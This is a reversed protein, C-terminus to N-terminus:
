LMGWEGCGFCTWVECDRGYMQALQEPQLAKKSWVGLDILEWLQVWYVREVLGDKACTPCTETPQVRVSM